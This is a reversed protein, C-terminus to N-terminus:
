GRELGAPGTRSSWIPWMSWSPRWGNKQPPEASWCFSVVRGILLFALGLRYHRLGGSWSAMRRLRQLGEVVALFFWPILVAPYQYGVSLLGTVQRRSRKM